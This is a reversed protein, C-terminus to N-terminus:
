GDGLDPDHDRDDLNASREHEPGELRGTMVMSIASAQDFGARNIMDLALDHGGMHYGLSWLDPAGGYKMGVGALGAVHALVLRGLENGFTQLYAATLAAEDGARIRAILAPGDFEGASM